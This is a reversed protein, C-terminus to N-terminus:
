TKGNLYNHLRELAERDEPWRLLQMAKEYECWCYDDHEESLTITDTRIEAAFVTNHIRTVDPPYNMWPKHGLPFSFDGVATLGSLGTIGTEEYVERRAAEVLDEDWNAAGSVAQWISGGRPIRHFLMYEFEGAPTCKYLYILIQEPRRYTLSKEPM